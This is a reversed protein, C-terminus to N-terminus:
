ESKRTITVRDGATNRGDLKGDRVPLDYYDQHGRRNDHTIILKDGNITWMGVQKGDWLFSNDARFGAVYKVGDNHNVFNWTGVIEAKASLKELAQKIRLATDLDNALTARRQLAELATQYLRNIPEATAALAKDRDLTLQDFERATDSAASLSSLALSIAAALCVSISQTTRQM